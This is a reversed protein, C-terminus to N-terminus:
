ERTGQVELRLEKVLPPAQEGAALLVNLPRPKQFEESRAAEEQRLADLERQLRAREEESRFLATQLQDVQKRSKAEVAGDLRREKALSASRRRPLPELAQGNGQAAALGVKPVEACGQPAKALLRQLADASFFHHRDPQLAAALRAWDEEGELRSPLAPVGGPLRRLVGQRADGSRTRGPGKGLEIGTAALGRPAGGGGPASGLSPACS